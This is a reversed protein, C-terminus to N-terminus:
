EENKASRDVYYMEDHWTALQSAFDGLQSNYRAVSVRVEVPNSLYLELGAQMKKLSFVITQIDELRKENTFGDRSRLGYLRERLDQLRLLASEYRSGRLATQAERMSMLIISIDSITSRDSLLRITRETARKSANVASRTRRLEILTLVFGLITLILEINSLLWVRINDLM